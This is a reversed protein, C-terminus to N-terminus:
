YTTFLSLKSLQLDPFLRLTKWLSKATSSIELVNKASYDYRNRGRVCCVGVKSISKDICLMLNIEFNVREVYHQFFLKEQIFINLLGSVSISWVYAPKETM